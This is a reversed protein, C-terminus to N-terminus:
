AARGKAGQVAEVILGVCRECVARSASGKTQQPYTLQRRVAIGDSSTRACLICVRPRDLPETTTM